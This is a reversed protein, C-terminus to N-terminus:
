RFRGCGEVLFGAGAGQTSVGEIALVGVLDLPYCGKGPKHRRAGARLGVRHIEREAVARTGIVPGTFLAFGTTLM